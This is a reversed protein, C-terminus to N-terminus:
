EEDGEEEERDRSRGGRARGEDKEDEDREAKGGRARIRPAAIRPAAVRPAAVRPVAMGGFQLGSIGEGAMDPEASPAVGYPERGGGGGLPPTRPAPAQPPSVSGLGPEMGAGIDSRRRLGRPIMGRPIRPRMGAMGGRAHEEEGGEEKEHKGIEERAIRRDEAEDDPHEVHFRGGRALPERGSPEGEGEEEDEGKHWQARFEEPLKHHVPNGEHDHHTVRGDGHVRSHGGHEHEVVYGGRAHERVDVPSHGHPHEERADGGGAYCPGGRAYRDEPEMEHKTGETMEANPGTEGEGRQITGRFGFASHLGDHEPEFFGKGEPIDIRAM